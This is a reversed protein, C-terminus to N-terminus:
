NAIDRARIDHGSFDAGAGWSWGVVGVDLVPFVVYIGPFVLGM